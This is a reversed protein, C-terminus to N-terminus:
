RQPRVNSGNQIDTSGPDNAVGGKKRSDRSQMSTVCESIAITNSLGDTIAEMSKWDSPYFLGRSSVDGSDGRAVSGYAVELAGDGYSVVINGKAGNACPKTAYGDSPCIVSKFNAQTEAFGSQGASPWPINTKSRIAVFRAEAEMYPLLCYTTSWRHNATTSYASHCQQFAAPLGNNSDHYNHLGLLWQKMNNSCQMRRAAERASQVAPLLLAILVGIIAIVVLLEVLTFGFLYSFCKFSIGWSNDNRYNQRKVFKYGGRGDDNKVDANVNFTVNLEADLLLGSQLNTKEM